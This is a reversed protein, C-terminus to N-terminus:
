KIKSAYKITKPHEFGYKQIMKTLGDLTYEKKLLGLLNKM